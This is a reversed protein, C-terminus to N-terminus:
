EEQKRLTFYFTTGKGPRSTLWIKGGHHEIIRKVTALGVGTGEEIKKAAPLRQFVQFIVDFYREDIGIGNDRVFFVDRGDERQCGIDIRPAPNDRGLYKVANSLLNEMVQGLRRKEGYVTPLGEQVRVEIGKEELKPRFGSLTEELLDTLSIEKPTETLRGIRSLELLDDILAEMRRAADSMYRLYKEGDEPLTEGFDERLAGIFGEITVIPTKLDHSVSYVFTELEANKAAIEEILAELKKENERLVGEVRERETIERLAQDRARRYMQMRQLLFYLLLYFAASASVGFVLLSLNKVGGPSYLGPKPELDLRWLKGPFAIERLAHIRAEPVQPGKQTGNFFILRDEEYIRVWFDELIDKALSIDMIRDIKFVGNLCGQLRGEYILPRFTHFGIGKGHLELCRSAAFALRGGAEGFAADLDPDGRVSRGRDLANPDDPYVWQFIGEPDLWNIGWFGPYYTYFAEAFEIFRRRSFDPPTREVWRAALLELAAMRANMLGEVRIRIQEASTETHRIIREREHSNQNRWLVLSLICCLLFVSLPLSKRLLSLSM